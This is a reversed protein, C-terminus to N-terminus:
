CACRMRIKTDHPAGVSKEENVAETWCSSLLPYMTTSTYIHPLLTPTRRPQETEPYIGEM